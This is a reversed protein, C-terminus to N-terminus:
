RALRGGESEWAKLGALARRASERRPDAPAVAPQGNPADDGTVAAPVDTVNGEGSGVPAPDTSGAPDPTGPQSTLVDAINRRPTSASATAYGMRLALQPTGLVGLAHRLRLAVTDTVQALPQALVGDQAARLLVIGVAQGAQLWCLPTDDDTLIVVVAPHESAPPEDGSGAPGHLEFDRRRLSSGREPDEPLTARPIGVEAPGDHAWSALEERYAPDAEELSDTRSLLVALELVDAPDTLVQLRGGAQEAVLHLQELLVTPVPSVDFADRYIHRRLIAEALSQEAAGPSPGWRLRPRALHTPDDPTPLLQADADLGRARAAVRAHLLAGGCSLHLQRGYPDLVPLRRADEAWLDLGEEYSSFQWPQTNHVSPAHTAAEVIEQHLDQPVTATM